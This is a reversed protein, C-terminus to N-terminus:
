SPNVAIGSTAAAGTLGDIYCQGRTTADTGYETIGVLVCQRFLLLGGASAALTGLGSMVTSTSQIANIFDCNDFTQFRDMNGSGTGIFGLPTAASTMFPFTCRRFINRPTAGAFEVSANAASRTVTDLGITCDEFLNEGSGGSGIKLSRSGADAASAADGMGGIHCRRFYNRSGTVTVAIQATTGTTFGDFWALDSFVCGNASVTFFNAFATTTSSPAMRARQSIMVPACIGVLHTAGKAWTFASDIRQTQGTGGNALIAVTDNRGTSTSTAQCANYAGQLTQKPGTAGDAAPTPTLGNYFDKGNVADCFYVTGQGQTLGYLTQFNSNIIAQDETTFAGVQNVFQM